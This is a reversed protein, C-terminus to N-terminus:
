IFFGYTLLLDQLWVLWRLSWRTAAATAQPALTRSNNTYNGDLLLIRDPDVFARTARAERRYTYATWRAAGDWVEREQHGDEFETLVEVPFIGEGHRRVVVTTEYGGDEAREAFSAEGAAGFFGRGAPRRSTLAQVGYDFVRATGHVQDFFWDLDSGSAASVSEFFDDPAPHGFRWREYFAAMGRQLTPWGLYRELTHLWLATKNYTISGATAPWYRYTPRAQADMRANRRYGGMRNGDIARSWPVDRLVWPVFRGFLRTSRHHETFFADMVRATAFTTLGEDIWAHEFENSGVVGYWFQHGAEHVIVEEPTGVDTPALWRAGATFLTPYEMGGTRSRWVPDVVTIQPYPYAGFWEGYYRLAHRTAEFHRAEQGAHEPQLLLRIDVPPLTPHEFRERREIFDPSTTWAFDHVDEQYYRHTATGDLNDVVSQEGGTAGVIWGTPVTIRVDYVGYDAFFETAAHFQHCNWGSDELVGVKPFWQAIFYYDGVVGTRAFPRPIQSTWEIELEVSDGPFAREPLPVVLVTEDDPNGDDPALHSIRSTLDLAPADDAGLLRVAQVDIWGWDSAPRARLGRGRARLRSERMWTSKTNKWANYYLHLQLEATTIVSTNRWTLVQRGHLRQAETDLRVDIAYSANRPSPAHDATAPQASAPQGAARAADPAASALAACAGAVVATRCLWHRVTRSVPDIM